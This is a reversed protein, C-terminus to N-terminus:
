WSGGGGGGFGGGGSFGGGGGSGGSSPPATVAATGVTTSFDSLGSSFSQANFGGSGAHWVYWTGIGTGTTLIALDAFARAWKETAGFVVAYPLYEVFLNEQEAFRARDTEATEIFERFGLTRTLLESGKPTRRPMWRHAITMVMGAVVLPVLVIAIRSFIMALVFAIFSLVLSVIGIALWKTRVKDPRASFWQRKRGQEYLAREAKGYDSSFTGKLDSVAVEDRGDFLGDYLFREFSALDDAPQDTRRVTWDTRTWWLTKSQEEEIVLYGRVALHVITAAIDVPDVREDIILGLEGPTLDEPPRFEIGVARPKFLPRTSEGTVYQLHTTDTRGDVTVDGRTERDRGERYLLRGVLGGAFLATLAFLPWARGDGFLAGLFSWRRVLLPESAAVSAADFPVEVSVPIGPPLFGTTSAAWGGDVANGTCTALSTACVADAARLGPGRVAVQVRAVSQQWGSGLADWRLVSTGPEGGPLMAGVVRYSIRYTHTGTIFTDEEGIRISVVGNPDLFFPHEVLTEDPATAVQVRIDQLEIRQFWDEPNGDPLEVVTDFALQETVPIYRFIGRRQQDFRQTIEEVVTFDGDAEVEITVKWAETQDASAPTTTGLVIALAGAVVAVLRRATPVVSPTTSNASRSTPRM